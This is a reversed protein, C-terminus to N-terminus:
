RADLGIQGQLVLGFQGADVEHAGSGIEGRRHRTKNRGKDLLLERGRLGTARNSRLTIRSFCAGTAGSKALAGDPSSGRSQRPAWGGHVTTAWTGVPAASVMALFECDRPSSSFGKTAGNRM